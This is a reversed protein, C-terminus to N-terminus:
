RRTIAASSTSRTTGAPRISSPGPLYSRSSQAVGIIADDELGGGWGRFGEPAWVGWDLVVFESGDTHTIQIEVTGAPVTFQVDHYDGGAATIDGELHVTSLVAAVFALGM